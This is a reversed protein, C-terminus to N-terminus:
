SAKYGGTDRENEIATEDYAMVNGATLGVTMAAAGLIATLKKGKM